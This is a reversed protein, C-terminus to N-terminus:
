EAINVEMMQYNDSNGSESVMITIPSNDQLEFPRAFTISYGNMIDDFYKGCLKYQDGGDSYTVSCYDLEQGNQFVKLVFAKQFQSPAEQLNTFTFKVLVTNETKTLAYTGMEFGEYTASGKATTMEIKDTKHSSATTEETNNENTGSNAATGDQSADDNNDKSCACLLACMLVALLLAILKKM